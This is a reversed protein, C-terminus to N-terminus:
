AVIYDVRGELALWLCGGFHNEEGYTQEKTALNHGVRYGWLSYSQLSGMPNELCSCQLPNGIGEGPYRESRPILGPRRSQLCISEKNDSDGSQNSSLLHAWGESVAQTSLQTWRKTTQMKDLHFWVPHVGNQTPKKVPCWLATVLSMWTSTRIRLSSSWEVIQFCRWKIKM